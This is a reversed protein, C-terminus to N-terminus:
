TNGIHEKPALQRVVSYFNPFDFCKRCFCGHSCFFTTTSGKFTFNTSELCIKQYLYLYLFLFTYIPTVFFLSAPYIQFRLLPEIHILFSSFIFDLESVLASLLRISKPVDALFFVPFHPFKSFVPPPDVRIGSGNKVTKLM